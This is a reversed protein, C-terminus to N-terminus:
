KQEEFLTGYLYRNCISEDSEVVPPPTPVPEVVPTSTTIAWNYLDGAIEYLETETIIDNAADVM